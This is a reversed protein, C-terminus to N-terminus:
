AKDEDPEERKKNLEEMQRDTRSAIIVCAYIIATVFASIVLTVLIMITM